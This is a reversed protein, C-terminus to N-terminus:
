ESSSRRASRRPIRRRRRQSQPNRPVRGAPTGGPLGPPQGARGGVSGSTRFERMRNRLMVPKSRSVLRPPASGSGSAPPADLAPQFPGLHDARRAHPAVAVQALCAHTRLSPEPPRTPEVRVRLLQGVGAAGQEAARTAVGGSPASAESVVRESTEADPAHPQRRDQAEGGLAEEGRPGLLAHLRSLRLRSARGKTKGGMGAPRFEILRTKEPHLSLGYQSFRKALLDKVERADAENSFALVADDAFRVM